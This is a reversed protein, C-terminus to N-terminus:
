KKWIDIIEEHSLLKGDKNMIDICTVTQNCGYCISEYQNGIIESYDESYKIQISPKLLVLKHKPCADKKLNLVVDSTRLKLIQNFTYSEMKKENLQKAFTIM